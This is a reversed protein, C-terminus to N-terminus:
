TVRMYRRHFAWMGILLYLITLIVLAIIEPFVDRLTMNLIMIKKLASVAHNPSMLGPLTVSYGAVSFLEQGRIPFAVGTFFMFLFLPFNGVILVENVTKTAAAIILSFAIISFSTLVAILLIPLISGSYTFGLSVAVLLTLVISVLGIIIQIVSVGALFEIANLRSLKLRLMTKNEVETVLAIAATFMLMIISLILLGPVSYSFDDIRGSSGLATETINYPPPIGTIDSFYANLVEGAWIATIMYGTDTLDGIFEIDPLQHISAMGPDHLTKSFSSPIIILADAYKKRLRRLGDERNEAYKIRVPIYMNKQRTKQAYTVLSDGYNLSVAGTDENVIVLDYHLKSAETIM